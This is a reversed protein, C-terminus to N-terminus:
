STICHMRKWYFNIAMSHWEEDHNLILGQLNQLVQGGELAQEAQVPSSNKM